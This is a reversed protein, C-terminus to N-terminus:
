KTILGEIEVMLDQRCIEGQLFLRPVTHALHEDLLGEVIEQDEGHRLYISFSSESGLAQLPPYGAEALLVELNKLTEITQLRVNSPAVTEYGDISATGSIFLHSHTEGLHEIARSFSPSRPGYREPYHYASTQRPNEIARRKGRGAVFSVTLPGSTSGVASAAPLDSSMNLGAAALVEFRARAFRQYRELGAEVENIDPFYHWLRLLQYEPYQGLLRLLREYCAKTAKEIDSDNEHFGGYLFDGGARLLCFEPENLRKVSGSTTLALGQADPTLSRLPILQGDLRGTDPLFCLLGLVSSETLTPTWEWSTAKLPKFNLRGSQREPEPPWVPLPKVHM